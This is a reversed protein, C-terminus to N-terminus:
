IFKKGVNGKNEFRKEWTIWDCIEWKKPYEQRGDDNKDVDEDMFKLLGIGLYACGIYGQRQGYKNIFWSKRENNAKGVWVHLCYPRNQEALLKGV